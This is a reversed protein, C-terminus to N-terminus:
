KGKALERRQREIEALVSAPVNGTLDEIDQADIAAVWNVVAASRKALRTGVRRPDPNWPLPVHGAPPPDPFSTTVGMVVVAAPDSADIVIVPRRKPNGGRPDAITAWGLRGPRLEPTPKPM